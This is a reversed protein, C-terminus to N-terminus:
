ALREGLLGRPEYSGRKESAPLPPKGKLGAGEGDGAVQLPPVKPAEDEAAEEEDEEQGERPVKDRLM